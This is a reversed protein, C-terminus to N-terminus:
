STAPTAYARALWAALQRAASEPTPGYFPMMASPGGHANLVQARWRSPDVNSVEIRFERGNIHERFRVAPKPM